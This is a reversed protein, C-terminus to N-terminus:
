SRLEVLTFYFLTWVISCLDNEPGFLNMVLFSFFYSQIAILSVLGLDVLLVYVIIICPFFVGLYPNLISYTLLM